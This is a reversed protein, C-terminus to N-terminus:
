VVVGWGFLWLVWGASDPFPGVEALPFVTEWVKPGVPKLPTISRSANINGATADDPSSSFLRLVGTRKRMDVYLVIAEAQPTILDTGALRDISARPKGHKYRRYGWFEHQSLDNWERIGALVAADNNASTLRGSVNELEELNNSVLIYSQAIQTAYLSSSRPDAEGFEELEASWNWIPARGASAVPPKKFYRSFDLASGKRLVMIYCRTSRIRGLGNPLLFDKSGVLIAESDALVRVPLQKEIAELGARWYGFPEWVYWGSSDVRSDSMLAPTAHFVTEYNELLVAAAHTQNTGASARGGFLILFMIFLCM